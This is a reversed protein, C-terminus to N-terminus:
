NVYSPLQMQFFIRQKALWVALYFKDNRANALFGPRKQSLNGRAGGALAPTLRQREKSIVLHARFSFLQFAILRILM